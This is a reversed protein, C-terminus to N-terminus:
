RLITVNVYYCIARKEVQNKRSEKIRHIRLLVSQKFSVIPYLYETNSINMHIERIYAYMRTIRFSADRYTSKLCDNRLIFM